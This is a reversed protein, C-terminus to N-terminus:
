GFAGEEMWMLVANKGDGLKMDLSYQSSFRGPAHREGSVGM